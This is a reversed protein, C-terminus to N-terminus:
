DDDSSTLAELIAITTEAAAIKAELRGYYDLLYSRYEEARERILDSEAALETDQDEIDDIIGQLTGTDPNGAAEAVQYLQDAIGRSIAISITASEDGSYNLVLGEYISGEAGTIKNGSVTFLATDGDVGASIIDGNADTTIQLDFSGSYSSSDHSKLTLESSSANFGYELLSQIASLNNELADELTDTDIELQNSADLTIGFLALSNEDIMNGLISGLQSATTRLTSDGFLYATDSATGDTNVSQNQTVWSRWSNYTDVFSQLAAEISETDMEIGITLTTGTEAKLLNLTVGDIVDEINNSDREINAVGDVSIIAPQQAQLENEYDGNVDVFGLTEAMDGSISIQQNTEVGTLVLMYENSSVAIISSKVGTSDTNNNIIDRIEELSMDDTISIDVTGTEATGLTLTGGLGLETTRSSQETGGLRHATALQVIEVTHTGVEVGDDITASLLTTADTTSDATITSIRQEFVNDSNSADSLIELADSLDQLLTQTQEYASIKTENETIRTDISDAKATRAAVAVEVVADVSLGSREQSYSTTSTSSVSSTTAM